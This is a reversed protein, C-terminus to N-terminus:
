LRVTVARPVAFAQRAAHQEDAIACPAKGIQDSARETFPRHDGVGHPWHQRTRDRPQRTLGSVGTNVRCRIRNPRHIDSM